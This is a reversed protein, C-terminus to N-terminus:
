PAPTTTTGAGESPTTTVPPVDGTTEVSKEERITTSGDKGQIETEHVVSETEGCGGALLSATLVGAVALPAFHKKM